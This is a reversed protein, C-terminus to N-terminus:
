TRTTPVGDDAFKFGTILYKKILLQFNQARFIGIGLANQATVNCVDPKKLINHIFSM